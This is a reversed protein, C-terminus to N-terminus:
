TVNQPMPVLVEVYANKLPHPPCLKIGLVMPDLLKMALCIGM